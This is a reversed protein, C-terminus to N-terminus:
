PVHPSLPGRVLSPLAAMPSYEAHVVVTAHACLSFVVACFHLGLSGAQPQTHYRAQPQKTFLKAQMQLKISASSCFQIHMRMCSEASLVHELLYV